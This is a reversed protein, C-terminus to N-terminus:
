WAPTATRGAERSCARHALSALWPTSKKSMFEAEKHQPRAGRHMGLVLRWTCVEIPEAFCGADLRSDGRAPQGRAQGGCGRGPDAGSQIRRM